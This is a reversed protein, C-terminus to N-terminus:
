PFSQGEAGAQRGDPQGTEGDELVESKVGSSFGKLTYGCKPCRYMKPRKVNESVVVKKSYKDVKPVFRMPECRKIEYLDGLNKGDTYIKFNCGGCHLVYKPPQASM